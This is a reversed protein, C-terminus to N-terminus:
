SDTDPLHGGRAEEYALTLLDLLEDPAERVVSGQKVAGPGLLAELRALSQPARREFVSRYMALYSTKADRFITVLSADGPIYVLLTTMNKKGQYTSTKALGQQELRAAWDALRTLFVQQDAPAAAITELFQADGPVPTASSPTEAPPRPSPIRRAPEVRQPVVIQSDGVDYRAVIILDIVLADSVAELFGVLQVLEEPAEDLVIVIRFRGTALSEAVGANFADHDVSGDDVAGFLTPQELRALHTGLVRQEFELPELGHLYAAYALVQSVVARRAEASYALKVEIVAVRGSPEVAILDAYGAGLRVERGVVVLRPSGALPLLQPSQEVLTHLEAESPFGAPALLRWGDASESSWIATMRGNELLVRHTLERLRGTTSRTPNCRSAPYESTEM